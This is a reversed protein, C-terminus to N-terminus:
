IGTSQIFSYTFSGSEQTEILAWDTGVSGNDWYIQYRTITDYGTDVGSLASWTVEIQSDDTAAGESPATPPSLPETRVIDGSDNLDSYAGPGIENTARVYAVILDGLELGFKASTLETYAVLCTTLSPDTGPCTSSAAFGSSGQIQIEFSEIQAGNEAPSNWAIQSYM